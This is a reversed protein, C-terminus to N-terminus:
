KQRYEALFDQKFEAFKGKSIAERIKDMFQKYWFINHYTVLQLGLMEKAKILHRLYARSFNQCTYCSCQKDLPGLDNAAPADRVVVEGQSSFATGTRGFRSPVVCDFLDVGCSVAEIIEEPRGSGMLYRILQKDAFKSIFSLINYRLNRPEGVSLGGICLGDFRLETIRELCQKRLSLDTSGQIIGFILVRDKSNACFYDKSKKAWDITRKVSAEIDSLKAPFHLCEDLPVIIDSGLDLQIKIVDEPSLFIPKGDIHSQFSVGRDEVKRLDALSFIQYGGSDTIITKDFGMFTHLGGSRKILETGPRLYLHYANVLLGDIAIDKLQLPSIGKVTAQTAVPFFSPTKFKGRRSSFVGTRAQTKLDQKILKFM